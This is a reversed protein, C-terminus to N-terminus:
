SFTFRTNYRETDTTSDATHICVTASSSTAVSAASPFTSPMLFVMRPAVTSAQPLLYYPGVHGNLGLSGRKRGKKSGKEAKKSFFGTGAWGSGIPGSPRM